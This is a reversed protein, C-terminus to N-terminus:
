QARAAKALSELAPISSRGSDATQAYRRVMARNNYMETSFDEVPSRRVMEAIERIGDDL